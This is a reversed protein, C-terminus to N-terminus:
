NHPMDTILRELHFPRSDPVFCQCPVPAVFKSLFHTGYRIDPCPLSGDVISTRPQLTRPQPNTIFDMRAAYRDRSRASIGAVPVYFDTLYSPALGNIAKYGFVGVKFKIRQVIPLCHFNDRLVHEVSDYRSVGGFLCGDANQVSHLHSVDCATLGVLLSKCYDLRCTIFAQHLNEPRRGAPVASLM